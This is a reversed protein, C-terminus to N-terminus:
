KVFNRSKQEQHLVYIGSAVIIFIGIWATYSPFDNFLWLGYTTAGIIETYQLPAIVSAEVSKSALVIMFHGVTAIIGVVALLIWQESNPMTIQFVPLDIFYGIFLAISIFVLGALGSNFQMVTSSETQSLKRTLIIYFAFCLAAGFPLISAFGFMKFNPQVVILAGLFGIATASLRRWGVKERLLVASLLAALLPQVFFISIVEALPMLQVAAVILVTTVALLIGRMGQLVINQPKRIRIANFFFPAMFGTQFVFRFWTVQGASISTALLKAIADIAPLVLFAIIAILIAKKEASLKLKSTSKSPHDM